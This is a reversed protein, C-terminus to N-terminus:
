CRGQSGPRFFSDEERVFGDAASAGLKMALDVVSQAQNKLEDMM